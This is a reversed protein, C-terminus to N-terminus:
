EGDEAAPLSAAPVLPGFDREVSERQERWGNDCDALMAITRVLQVDGGPRDEWADGHRDLYRATVPRVPEEPGFGCRPCHVYQAFDHDPFVDGQWNVCAHPGPVGPIAPSLGCCNLGFMEAFDRDAYIGQHGGTIRSAAWRLAAQWAAADPHTSDKLAGAHIRLVRAPDFANSTTM